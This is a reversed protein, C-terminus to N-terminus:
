FFKTEYKELVNSVYCIYNRNALRLYKKRLYKNKVRKQCVINAIKMNEENCDIM